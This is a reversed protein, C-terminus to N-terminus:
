LTGAPRRHGSRCLGGAAAPTRRRQLTGAVVTPLAASPEEFQHLFVMPRKLGAPQLFRSISFDQEAETGPDDADAKEYAGGHKLLLRNDDYWFGAQGPWGRQLQVPSRRYKMQRRRRASEGDSQWHLQDPYGGTELLLLPYTQALAAPSVAM